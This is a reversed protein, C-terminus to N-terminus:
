PSDEAQAVDKRASDAPIHPTPWAKPPRYGRGGFDTWSISALADDAMRQHPLADWAAILEEQRVHTQPTRPM